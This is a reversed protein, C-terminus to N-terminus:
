SNPPEAPDDASDLSKGGNKWYLHDMVNRFREAPLHIENFARIFRKLDEYQVPTLGGILEEPENQPSNPDNGEFRPVNPDPERYAPNIPDSYLGQPKKPENQPNNQDSMQM